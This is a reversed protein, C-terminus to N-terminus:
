MYVKGDLKSSKFCRLNQKCGRTRSTTLCPMLKCVANIKRKTEPRMRMELANPTESRMYSVIFVDGVVRLLCANKLNRRM